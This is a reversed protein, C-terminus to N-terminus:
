FIKFYINIYFRLVGTVIVNSTIRYDGEPFPLIKTLKYNLYSIPLKDVILSGSYPCTHNVNGYPMIISLFFTTVKNGRSPNRMYSCYEITFNYLFPKYGNLRKMLPVELVANNLPVRLLYKASAYKYTRNISKLYCYDFRGFEEDVGTCEINTFELRAYIQFF